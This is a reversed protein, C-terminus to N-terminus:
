GGLKPKSSVTVKSQSLGGCHASRAARGSRDWKFPWRENQLKTAAEDSGPVSCVLDDWKNSAHLRQAYERAPFPQSRNFGPTVSASCARCRYGFSALMRVLGVAEEVGGPMRCPDFEAALHFIRQAALLRRAGSLVRGDYGQTDVKVFLLCADAPVIEDLTRVSVNM